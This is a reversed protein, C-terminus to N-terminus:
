NVIAQIIFGKPIDLHKIYSDDRLVHGSYLLTIHKSSLDHEVKLRRKLDKVTDAAQLTLKIDKPLTSLRIRIAVPDGTPVSASLAPRPLGVGVAQQTKKTVKMRRGEKSNRRKRAGGRSESGPSSSPPHGQLLQTTSCPEQSEVDEVGATVPNAPRLYRSSGAMNTPKSICYKPVVYRNGLEDYAEVLRGAHIHTYLYM